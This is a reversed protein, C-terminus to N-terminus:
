LRSLDIATDNVSLPLGVVSSISGFMGKSQAIRSATPRVPVLNPQPTACHPAQVTWM